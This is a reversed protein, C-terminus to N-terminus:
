YKMQLFINVILCVLVSKMYVFYFFIYM